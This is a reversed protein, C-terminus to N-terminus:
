REPRASELWEWRVRAVVAEHQVCEATWAGGAARVVHIRLEADPLVPLLREESVHADSIVPAAAESGNLHALILCQTVVPATLAAALGHPLLQADGPRPDGHARAHCRWAKAISSLTLDPAAHRVAEEDPNRTRPPTM